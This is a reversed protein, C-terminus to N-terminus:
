MGIPAPDDVARLLRLGEFREFDEFDRLNLTLLPLDKALCCAAIWTDNAPRPRGRADARAATAGWVRTVERDAPIVVVSHLWAELQGRTREGWARREAWKYLEAVTVFSVAATVDRLHGALSDPLRGKQLLSSVDTDLVVLAM